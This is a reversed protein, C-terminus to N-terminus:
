AGAVMLDYLKAKIAMIEADRKDIAKRADEVASALRMNQDAQAANIAGFEDVKSQLYEGRRQLRMHEQELNTLKGQLEVKEAYYKSDYENSRDIYYKATYAADDDINQEALEFAGDFASGLYSNEGLDAVIKRVKALAAREQDKTAM